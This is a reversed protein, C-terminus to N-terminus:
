IRAARHDNSGFSGGHTATRSARDLGEVEGDMQALHNAGRLALARSPVGARQPIECREGDPFHRCPADEIRSGAAFLIQEPRDLRNGIPMKAPRRCADGPLGGNSASTEFQARTVPDFARRELNLADRVGRVEIGPEREAERPQRDVPIPLLCMWRGDLPTRKPLSARKSRM